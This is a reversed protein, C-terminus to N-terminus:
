ADWVAAPYRDHQLLEILHRDEDAEAILARAKARMQKESSASHGVAVAREISFVDGPERMFHFRDDSGGSVSLLVWAIRRVREAAVAEAMPRFDRPFPAATLLAPVNSTDVVLRGSRGLSGVLAPTAAGGRERRLRSALLGTNWREVADVTLRRVLNGTDPHVVFPTSGCALNRAMAEVPDGLESSLWVVASGAPRQEVSLLAPALGTEALAQELTTQM